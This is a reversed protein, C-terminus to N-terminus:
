KLMKRKINEKEKVERNELIHSCLKEALVPDDKFYSSITTILHKKSLPSKINNKSYVLKSDNTNFCDIEHKKMINVLNDAVDKKEKRLVRTKQLLNQLENDIQIYQKITNIMENKDM